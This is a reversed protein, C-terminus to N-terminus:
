DCEHIIFKRVSYFNAYYNCASHLCAERERLQLKTDYREFVIVKPATNNANEDEL